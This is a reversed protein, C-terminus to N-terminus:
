TYGLGGEECFDGMKTLKLGMIETALTFIIRPTEKLEEKKVNMNLGDPFEISERKM